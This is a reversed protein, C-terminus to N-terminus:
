MDPSSKCRVTDSTSCSFFAFSYFCVFLLASSWGLAQIGWWKEWDDSPQDFGTGEDSDTIWWAMLGVAIVFVLAASYRLALVRLPLVEESLEDGGLLPDTERDRFHFELRSRKWRYYYIQFLLIVDCITYQFFFTFHVLYTLSIQRVCM